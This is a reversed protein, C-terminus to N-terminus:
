SQRASAAPRTRAALHHSPWAPHFSRVTQFDSLRFKQPRHPLHQSRPRLYSMSLQRLALLIVEGSKYLLWQSALALVIPDTFQSEMHHIIRSESYTYRSIPRSSYSWGSNKDRVIMLHAGFLCRGNEQYWLKNYLRDLWIKSLALKAFSIVRRV